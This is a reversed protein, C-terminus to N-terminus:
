QQTKKVFVKWVKDTAMYWDAITAFRDEPKEVHGLTIGDQGSRAVYIYSPSYVFVAPTDNTIESVFSGYIDDEKVKDLTALGQELLKDAKSNAYGSINLGPSTRESSHWFAYLDSQSTIVEGFFLAQFKRPRIIDQNLSGTEYTKRTAEIGAAQLDQIMSDVAETLEPTDNTAIEFSLRERDKGSGKVYIGDAGLQWGANELMAKATAKNGTNKGSTTNVATTMLRSSAPIPSTDATGYGYLVSDVVKDKNVALAVAKRVSVSAFIKAQSQNFFLGFVRPLEATMIRAGSMKLAAANAPDIGGMTDIDGAKYAAIMTDESAYFHIRVTTIRPSLGDSTKVATLEYYTPIGSSNQAVSRVKYLGNGIADKGDYGSYSWNEYPITSWIHKPMIGLTTSALFPAFPQKLTFTVTQADPAKALVGLWAVREASKLTANQASTVTFLVDDSTLPTGDQFTAGKLIFTYTLGDPSVTYSKALDPVLDGNADTKMLGRYVLASLDRDADSAALLPNVYRPTGVVGENLTGGTAPVSVLFHENIRQVLLLVAVASIALAVIFILRELPDFAELARTLTEKISDQRTSTTSFEEM